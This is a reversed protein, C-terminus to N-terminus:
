ALSFGPELLSDMTTMVLEGSDLGILYDVFERPSANFHRVLPWEAGVGRLVAPQGLPVIDERFKAADVASWERMSISLDHAREIFLGDPDVFKYQNTEPDLLTNWSTGNDYSVEVKGVQHTAVEPRFSSDFELM